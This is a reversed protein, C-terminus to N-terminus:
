EVETTSDSQAELHINVSERGLQCDQKENCQFLKDNLFSTGCAGVLM